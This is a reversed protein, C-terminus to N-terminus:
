SESGVGANSALILEELKAQAAGSEVLSRALRIGDAISPAKDNVYLTAGATLLLFDLRPGTERGAFLDRVIEANREASGGAIDAITCRQLGFEEPTIEYYHIKGRVVDAISTRGLLSLEDLGDIGHAILVHNFDMEAVVQAMMSVLEPRYVGMSHNRAGAPNLLPGIITFFISKIGLENEPGFVRGMIPHFSPAHLFSVGVTEILHAALEPSPDINIGLAELVDASGSSSSISRSGHKAVRVGGAASLIANASSVNFTTLGGGTGCTDSLEGAVDVRLPVAVKRMAEAIAAVESVTPGKNTLGVLFGAIQVDSLDGANIAEVVSHIEARDLNFNDALKTLVPAITKRGRAAQAIVTADQVADAPASARLAAPAGESLGRFKYQKFATVTNSDKIGPLAAIKDNVVDSLNEYAHVQVHALLDFDGTVSYVEAVEEIASLETAVKTLAGKKVKLSVMATIVRM